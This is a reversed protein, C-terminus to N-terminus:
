SVSRFFWDKGITKKNEHEICYYEYEFVGRDM